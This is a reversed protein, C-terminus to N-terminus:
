QAEVSSTASAKQGLTDNEFLITDREAAQVTMWVLQEHVGRSFLDHGPLYM